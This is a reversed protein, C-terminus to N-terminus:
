RATSWVELGSETYDFAELRADKEAFADRIAKHFKPSSYILMYGADGAGLVKGGLAGEQRAISYLEDVASNSAKSFLKKLQWSADLLDGFKKVKGKLLAEKMEIALSTMKAFNEMKAKDSVNFSSSNKSQIKGSDHTGGFRFLMLNYKLELLIERNIRLPNVLVENKRFDIWNFGGFLTSYQDQWGGSIGLNLRESQYALDAIDYLDLRKENRFQNLAGIIAVTMASSGGLGTGADIDSHTELDFGFSPQMIKVASKLLDLRDGFQINEISDFVYELGLDKSRLHIEKDPRVMVSATCYKTITSSLVAGPFHDIYYSMDTGGGSYSIRVPVRARIIRHEGRSSAKFDSLRYLDVPKKEDDLVPLVTVKKDFHRLVTHSTDNHGAYIFNRNMVSDIRDDLSTGTLIKRRIDGDTVVGVCVGQEDTVLGFGLHDTYLATLNFQELANRVTLDESFIIDKLYSFAM